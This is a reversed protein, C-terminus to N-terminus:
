IGRVLETSFVYEVKLDYKKSLSLQQNKSSRKKLMLANM